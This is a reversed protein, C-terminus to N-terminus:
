NKYIGLGHNGCVDIKLIGQSKGSLIVNGQRFLYLIDFISAAELRGKCGDKGGV